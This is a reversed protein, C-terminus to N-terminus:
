RRAPKAKHTRDSPRMGGMQQLMDILARVKASLLRRSSYLAWIEVPATADMGIQKLRGAAVDEEVLLGPLMSVGAGELVAERAMMLSSVKLVPLPAITRMKGNPLEVSWQSRANSVNLIVSPLSLPADPDRPARPVSLTPPAVLVRRDSAIRRGVLLVDEAPDIRIVLDYGDQVPDVLRDEAVVELEVQPYALAFRSAIRSLVVHAFVVPASVRLRGRAVPARAAVAEGVEEIEALLGRTREHLAHGEETLRLTRSGRDVLRVGLSQELEAVHRSLTAKPRDLARAARGFGGYQAVANFDALAVLDMSM